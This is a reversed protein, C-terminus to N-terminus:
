RGPHERCRLARRRRQRFRFRRRPRLGSGSGTGSPPSGAFAPARNAAKVPVAVQVSLEVRAPNGRGAADVAADAAVAVTVTGNSSPTIAATYSSGSFRFVGTVSGNSVSIDSQEFGTVAESFTATVDFPQLGAVSQPGDLRVSPADLDATVAYQVAASNLHGHADVAAGAAVDVTM